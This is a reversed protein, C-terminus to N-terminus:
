GVRRGARSWAAAGAVAAWAAAAIGVGAAFGPAHYTFVAHTEGPRVAVGRVWYNAQLLPRAAGDVSVTWGPATADALVLLAPM